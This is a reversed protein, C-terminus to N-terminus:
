WRQILKDNAFETYNSSKLLNIKDYYRLTRITVDSVNAFENIMGAM